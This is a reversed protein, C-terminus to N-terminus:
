TTTGLKEKIGTWADRRENNPGWATENQMCSWWTRNYPNSTFNQLPDQPPPPSSFDLILYNASTAGLGRGLIMSKYWDSPRINDQPALHPLILIRSGYAWQQLTWLGSGNERNSRSYEWCLKYFKGSYRENGRWWWSHVLHSPLDLALFQQRHYWSAKRRCQCM